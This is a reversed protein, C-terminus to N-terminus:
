TTRTSDGSTKENSEGDIRPDVELDQDFVMANANLGRDREAQQRRLEEEDYTSVLGTTKTKGPHGNWQGKKVDDKREVTQGLKNMM